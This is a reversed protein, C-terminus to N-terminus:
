SPARTEGEGTRAQEAQKEAALDAYVGELQRLLEGRRQQYVQETVRQRRLDAELRVVEELLEEREEELTSQRGGGRRSRTAVGWVGWGLLGLVILGVGNRLWRKWAPHVPLGSILLKLSTGTDLQLNEIVTHPRNDNGMATRQTAGAPTQIRMGPIQEFVMQNRWGRFLGHPMPMEFTAKGDDTPLGFSAVFSREGPPLPGRWVLGRDEDVKVPVAGGEGMEENISAGTYGKPLPIRLGQPGPQYPVLSPNFLLIQAQFYLQEDDLMGIGHFGFLVPPAIILSVSAGQAATLQFPLTLFPRPQGAARAYYVADPGGPISAFGAQLEKQGQNNSVVEVKAKAMPADAGAQYLEVEQVNRTDGSLRIVVTGPPPATPAPQQQDTNVLDDIPPKQSDVAEGALIMRMGVKPPMTVLRSILRDEAGQRGLLALAIYSHSANAVLRDFVARGGRDVARSTLTVKGETNITVLHIKADPPFVAKIDGFETRKMAGQVARVTLRGPPDTQEGRAIGSMQRPDQMMPPLQEGGGETGGQGAEGAAGGAEGGEAAGTEAPAGGAGADASQALASAPVLLAAVAALWAHRM